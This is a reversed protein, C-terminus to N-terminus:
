FHFSIPMHLSEATEFVPLLKAAAARFTATRRRAICSRLLAHASPVLRSPLIQPSATHDIRTGLRANMRDFAPQVASAEDPRLVVTRYRAPCKTWDDFLGCLGIADLPTEVTWPTDDEGRARIISIDWAPLASLADRITSRFSPPLPLDLLADLTPASALARRKRPPCTWPAPRLVWRTADRRCEWTDDGADFAFAELLSGGPTSQVEVAALLYDLGTPRVLTQFWDSSLAFHRNAAPNWAIVDIVAGVRASRSLLEGIMPNWQSDALFHFADADTDLPDTATDLFTHWKWSADADTCTCALITGSVIKRADGILDRWGDDTADYHDHHPGFHLAPNQDLDIRIPQGGPHPNAVAIFPDGGPHKRLTADFDPLARRLDALARKPSPFSLPSSNM